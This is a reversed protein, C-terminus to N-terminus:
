AFRRVLRRSAGSVYGRVQGAVSWKLADEIEYPEMISSIGITQNAFLVDEIGM